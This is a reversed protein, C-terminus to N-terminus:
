SALRGRVVSNGSHAPNGDAPEISIDVLPYTSINVGPPLAFRGHSGRLLGLSVLKKGNADLLWVEYFGNVPGLGSVEIDLARQTGQDVVSATGSGSHLPLPALSARAVVKAPTDGGSVAAVIGLTALAGVVAAALSAAVLTRWSPGRRPLVGVLPVDVTTGSLGLEKAVRDWVEPPPASPRDAPEVSRSAAVVARLQDLESQCHACDGLHAVDSSSGVSEGLALLALVDPDCHQPV